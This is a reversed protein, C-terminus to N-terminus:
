KMGRRGRERSPPCHFELRRIESLCGEGIGPGGEGRVEGAADEGANWGEGNRGHESREDSGRMREREGRGGERERKIEEERASIPYVLV